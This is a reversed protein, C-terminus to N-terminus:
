FSELLVGWRAQRQFSVKKKSLSGNPKLMSGGSIKERGRWRGPSSLLEIARHVKAMLFSPPLSFDWSPCLGPLLSCLSGLLHLISPVRLMMQEAQLYLM